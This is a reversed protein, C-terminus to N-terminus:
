DEEADDDLLGHRVAWVVIEQKTTVGLKQEIRYITNRVTIPSNGIIGAVEAYSNGQAFLRLVDRERATLVDPSQQDSRSPADRVSELAKRVMDVPIRSRGAAADRVATLLDDRGSYKQLYGTAGAALANMIADDATSATLVLVRTKPLAQMIESCAAVGDKNPMILDMVVVDPQVEQAVQLAEEGDFAQGVVTMDGAQELVLQLGDRVIAHDDVIMVRIQKTTTM